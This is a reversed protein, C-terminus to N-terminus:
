KLAVEHAEYREKNWANYGRLTITITDPLTEMAALVTEQDYLDTQDGVPGATSSGYFGDAYPQGDSNLFEFWLGGETAAYADEDVVRYRVQAYTGMATSTLTVRTVEVGCSDFRIPEAGEVVARSPTASLSITFNAIERADPTEKPTTVLIMPVDLQQPGGSVTGSAMVYVVGEEDMFFDFSSLILTKGLEENQDAVGAYVIRDRGLTHAWDALTTEALADNGTLDSAPDNPSCDGMLLLIDDAQPKIAFVAYIAQGDYMCEKLSVAALSTAALREESGPQIMDRAEPLVRDDRDYRTIFDWLGMQATAALAAATVLLLAIAIVAGMRIKRM